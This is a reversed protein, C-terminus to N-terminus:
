EDQGVPTLLGTAQVYQFPRVTLDDMPAILTGPRIQIVSKESAHDYDYYVIKHGSQLRNFIGNLAFRLRSMPADTGYTSVGIAFTVNYLGDDYERIALTLPGILDANPMEPINAHAEWDIFQLPFQPNRANLDAQLSKVWVVLSAWTNQYVDEM